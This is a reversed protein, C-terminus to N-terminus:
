AEEDGIDALNRGSRLIRGVCLAPSEEEGVGQCVPTNYWMRSIFLLIFIRFLTHVQLICM